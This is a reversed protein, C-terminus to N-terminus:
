TNFYELIRSTVTKSLPTLFTQLTVLLPWISQSSVQGQAQSLGRESVRKLRSASVAVYLVCNVEFYCLEIEGFRKSRRM